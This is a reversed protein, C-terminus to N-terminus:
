AWARGGALAQSATHPIHVPVYCSDARGGYIEHDAVDPMGPQLILLLRGPNDLGKQLLPGGDRHSIFSANGFVSPPKLFYKIVPLILHIGNM